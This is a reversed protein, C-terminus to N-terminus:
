LNINSLFIKIEMCVKNSKKLMATTREDIESAPTVVVALMLRGSIFMQQLGLVSFPFPHTVSPEEVSEPILSCLWTVLALYSVSWSDGTFNTRVPCTLLTICQPISM